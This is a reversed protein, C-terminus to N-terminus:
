YNRMGPYHMRGASGGFGGQGYHNKMGAQGGQQQSPAPMYPPPAQQQPQQQMGGGMGMGGGGFMGMFAALPNQAQQTQQTQPTAMGWGISRAPQPAPQGVGPGFGQPKPAAGRFPGAGSTFIQGQTMQRGWEPGMGMGAGGGGYGGMLARLLNSM